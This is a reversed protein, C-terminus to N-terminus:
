AEAQAVTRVRDIARKTRLLQLQFWEDDMVENVVLTVNGSRPKSFKILRLPFGNETGLIRGHAIADRIGVLALNLTKTNKAEMHRNFRRILTALDAYDTLESLSLTAGEAINAFDIQAHSHESRELELLAYRLWTELAQFNHVLKGLYSSHESPTM